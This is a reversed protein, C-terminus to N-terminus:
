PSSRARDDPAPDPSTLRRPAVHELCTRAQAPGIEAVEALVVTHGRHLDAVMQAAQPDPVGTEHLLRAVARDGACQSQGEGTAIMDLDSDAFTGQRHEDPHGAWGGKAQSRLRPANGVREDPAIM